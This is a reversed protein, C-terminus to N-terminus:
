SWGEEDCIHEVLEVIEALCMWKGHFGCGSQWDYDNIDFTGDDEPEVRFWDAIYRMLTQRDM